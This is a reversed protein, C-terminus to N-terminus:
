NEGNVLIQAEGSKLNETDIYATLVYESRKRSRDRRFRRISAGMKSAREKRLM